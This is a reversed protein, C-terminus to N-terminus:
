NGSYFNKVTKLIGNEAGGVCIFGVSGYVRYEGDALDTKLFMGNLMQKTREGDLTIKPLAAFIEDIPVLLSEAGGNEVIARIEDLTKANEVTFGGSKTRVLGSMVAGTGLAKGIDACLTRIYTGKSCAVRMSFENKCFDFIEIESISVIRSKREVEVGKRAYEYLKKGGVKVASYMPPIQEIEGVFADAANKIEEETVASANAESLVEGWIDETDTTLGLRVRAIYEKDTATLMDSVKTGKGICVPLVGTAQPDLTGTHGVKKISLIKRM